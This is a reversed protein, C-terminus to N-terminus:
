LLIAEHPAWFELSLEVNLMAHQLKRYLIPKQVVMASRGWSWGPMARYTRKTSGGPLVFM